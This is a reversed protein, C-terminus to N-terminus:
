RLENGDVVVMAMVEERWGEDGERGKAGDCMRGKGKLAEAGAERM